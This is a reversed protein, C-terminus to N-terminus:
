TALISQTKTQKARRLGFRIGIRTTAQFVSMRDFGVGNKHCIRCSPTFYGSLRVSSACNISPPFLCGSLWRRLTNQQMFCGLVMGVSRNVMWWVFAGTPIPPNFPMFTSPGFRSRNPPFSGSIHLLRGSTQNIELPHTGVRLMRALPMVSVGIVCSMTFTPTKAQLWGHHPGFSM